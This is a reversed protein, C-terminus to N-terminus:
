FMVDNFEAGSLVITQGTIELSRGVGGECEKDRQVAGINEERSARVKKVRERVSEM